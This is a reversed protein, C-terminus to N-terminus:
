IEAKLIWQLRGDSKKKKRERDKLVICGRWLDPFPFNRFISGPAKQNEKINQHMAGGGLRIFM